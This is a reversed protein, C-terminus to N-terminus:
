IKSSLKKELKAASFKTNGEFSIGTLRFKGQLIYTVVIGQDTRQDRVQINSFFGTAYLNIVDKDVSARVYTDGPKVHINARVLEDSAVKPGINTIVISVVRDLSSQASAAPLWGLFLLLWLGGHRILFKM